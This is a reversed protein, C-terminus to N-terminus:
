HYKKLSLIQGEEDKIIINNDYIIMYSHPTDNRPYALSGPNAILLDKIKSIEYIHTHGYVFVDIGFPLNFPSYLHGHTFFFNKNNINLIIYNSIPFLCKKVQEDYDCNGRVSSMLIKLNNLKELNSEKSNLLDGLLILQDCKEKIFLEKLKETYYVSGHIDSVVLYKM